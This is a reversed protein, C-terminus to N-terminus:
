VTKLDTNELKSAEGWKRLGIIPHVVPGLYSNGEGQRGQAAQSPSMDLIMPAPAMQRVHFRCQWVPFFNALEFKMTEDVNLMSGGDCGLYPTSRRSPQGAAPRAPWPPSNRRRGSPVWIPLPPPWGHKKWPFAPFVHSTETINKSNSPNDPLCITTSPNLRYIHCLIVIVYPCSKFTPHIDM